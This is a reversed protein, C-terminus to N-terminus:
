PATAFDFEIGHAALVTEGFAEWQDSPKWVKRLPVLATDIPVHDHIVRHLFTFMSARMNMQCHVLVRQDDAGALAASFREFDAAQPNQWDVPINVYEVGAGELLERETAVAGKVTPPALNIVLEYGLEGLRGLKGADPQGSTHLRDDVAVFNVALTDDDACSALPSCAVAMVVLLSCSDLRAHHRM